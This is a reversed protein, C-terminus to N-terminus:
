APVGEYAIAAELVRSADLEPLRLAYSAASALYAPGAQAPPLPTSTSTASRRSSTM